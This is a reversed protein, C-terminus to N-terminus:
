GYPIAILRSPEFGPPVPVAPQAWLAPTRYLASLTWSVLFDLAGWDWLGVVVLWHSFSGEGFPPNLQNTSHSAVVGCPNRFACFSALCVALSLGDEQSGMLPILSM